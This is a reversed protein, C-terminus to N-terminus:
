PYRKGPWYRELVRLAVVVYLVAISIYVIRLIFNSLFSADAGLSGNVLVLLAIFASGYYKANPRDAFVQQGFLLTTLLMLVIFFHYEPVAVILHFFVFAGIGGILTSVLSDMGAQKGKSLDPQLSYIAAFVMVLLQSGLDYILFTAALPLVVITSKLAAQAAPELYGRKAGRRAPLQPGGAPDPILTHAIIIMGVTLWGSSIFGMALGLALGEYTNGLLPLILIALIMMIVLWFSGGRNALYYVHFLALGLMPLYLLPYPLLFITFFAGVSFGVLTELMNRIASRLTPSPLPMSLFLATLIPLLFSLQWEIGYAIAVALTVGVAYRIVRTQRQNGLWFRIKRVPHPNLEAADISLPSCM